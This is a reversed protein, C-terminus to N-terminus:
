EAKTKMKKKEKRAKKTEKDVAKSKDKKKKKAKKVKIEPIKEDEITLTTPKTLPVDADTETRRWKGLNRTPVARMGFRAGGTAEFLEEDTFEKKRKRKKNKSGLKALTDGVSDKWWTDAHIETQGKESGLGSLEQRKKVRIHSTIGDRKKGLGTGETWGMKELQKRAFTSTPASVSEQLSSGLKRRLKSGALDMTSSKRDTKRKQPNQASKAETRREILNPFSSLFSMNTKNNIKGCAWLEYKRPQRLHYITGEEAQPRDKKYDIQSLPQEIVTAFIQFSANETKDIPRRWCCPVGLHVNGLFIPCM